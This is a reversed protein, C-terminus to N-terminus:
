VVRNSQSDTSVASTENEDKALREATMEVEYNWDTRLVIIATIAAGFFLAVAMGVWLGPLEM